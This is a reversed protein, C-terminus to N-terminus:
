ELQIKKVMVNNECLKIKFRCSGSIYNLPINNLLLIRKRDKNGGGVREKKATRRRSWGQIKNEEIM